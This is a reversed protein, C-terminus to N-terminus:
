IFHEKKQLYYKKLKTWVEEDGCLADGWGIVKFEGEDYNDNIYKERASENLHPNEFPFSLAVRNFDIAQKECGIEHYANIFKSYPPNNTWISEFFYEYGGNDIVEQASYVLLLTSVPKSLKEIDQSASGLKEKAKEFAKDLEKDMIFEENLM